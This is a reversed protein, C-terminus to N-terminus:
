ACHRKAVVDSRPECHGQTPLLKLRLTVPACVADRWEEARGRGGPARRAQVSRLHSEQQAVGGMLGGAKTCPVAVGLVDLFCEVKAAHRRAATDGRGQDNLGSPGTDFIDEGPLIIEKLSVVRM